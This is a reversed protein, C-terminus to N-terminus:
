LKGQLLNLLEERSVGMRACVTEIVFVLAHESLSELKRRSCKLQLEPPLSADLDLAFDILTYPEPM